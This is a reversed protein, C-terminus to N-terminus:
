YFQPILWHKLLLLVILVLLPFPILIHITLFALITHRPLLPDNNQLLRRRILVRDRLISLNEIGRLSTPASRSLEVLHGAPRHILTLRHASMDRLVLRKRLSYQLWTVCAWCCLGCAKIKPLVIRPPAWSM